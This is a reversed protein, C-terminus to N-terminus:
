VDSAREALETLEQLAAAREVHAEQLALEADVVARKARALTVERDHHQRLARAHRMGAVELPTLQRGTGRVPLAIEANSPPSPPLDGRLITQDKPTLKIKPPTTQVQHMVKKLSENNFPTNMTPTWAEAFNRQAMAPDLVTIATEDRVVVYFTGNQRMVIEYLYTIEGPARPDRVTYQHEPHRLREDLLNGLDIDDRHRFEEDVRERFRDLAHVSINFKRHYHNPPRDNRSVSRM